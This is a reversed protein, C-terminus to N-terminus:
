KARVDALARVAMALGDVVRAMDPYRLKEPTDLPSHYHPYRLFATDTVMVAR